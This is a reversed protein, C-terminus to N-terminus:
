TAEAPRVFFRFKVLNLAALSTLTAPVYNFGRRIFFMTARAALRTSLPSPEDSPRYVPAVLHRYIVHEGM